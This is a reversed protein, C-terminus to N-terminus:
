LLTWSLSERLMTVLVKALRFKVESMTKLIM